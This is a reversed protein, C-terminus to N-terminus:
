KMYESRHLAPHSFIKAGRIQMAATICILYQRIKLTRLRPSLVEYTVHLINDYFM